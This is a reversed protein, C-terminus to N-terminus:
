AQPEAVFKSNASIREHLKPIFVSKVLMSIIVAGCVSNAMLQYAQLPALEILNIQFMEELLVPAQVVLAMSVAGKPSWSSLVRKEDTAITEGRLFLRVCVPRIAIVGLWVYVAVPFDIM